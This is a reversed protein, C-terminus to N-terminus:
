YLFKLEKKVDVRAQGREGTKKKIKVIVVIRREHECGMVGGLGSGWLVGMKMIVEISPECTNPVYHKIFMYELQIIAKSTYLKIEDYIPCESIFHYEDELKRCIRRVREKFSNFKAMDM